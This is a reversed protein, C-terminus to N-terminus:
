QELPIKLQVLIALFLFSLNLLFYLNKGYKLDFLFKIGTSIFILDFRPLYKSEEIVEPFIKIM